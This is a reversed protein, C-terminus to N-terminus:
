RAITLIAAGPLSALRVEKRNTFLANFNQPKRSAPVAEPVFSQALTDKADHRAIAIGSATKRFAVLRHATRVSSHCDQVCAL